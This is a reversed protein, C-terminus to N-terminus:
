PKYWTLFIKCNKYIRVHRIYYAIIILSHCILMEEKCNNIILYKYVSFVLISGALESLSAIKLYLRVSPFCITKNILEKIKFINRITMLFELYLRYLVRRMERYHVSREFQISRENINVFRQIRKHICHQSITFFYTHIINM